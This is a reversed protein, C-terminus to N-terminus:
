KKLRQGYKIVVQNGDKRYWTAMNVEGNRFAGIVKEGAEAICDKTGPILHKKNFYMTGNGHAKGDASKDGEYTAYDMEGGKKEEKEEKGSQDSVDKPSEVQVPEKGGGQVETPKEQNTFWFIGVGLILVGVGMAIWKGLPSPKGGGKKGGKKGGKSEVPELQAGCESCVFETRYAEQIEKNEAKSCNDKNTCIGKIKAM